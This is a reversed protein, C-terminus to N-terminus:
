NNPNEMSRKWLKYIHERYQHVRLNPNENQLIPLHKHYFQKFEHKNQIVENSSELVSLADDITGIVDKEMKLFADQQVIKKRELEKEEQLVRQKREENELLRNEEQKKREEKEQLLTEQERQAKTKPMMSLAQNLLSLDDNKVKKSKTKKGPVLLEEEAELMEKTEQKLRMKEEHKENQLQTKLEGRKNTGVEWLMEEEQIKKEEFQEQQRQEAKNERKQQKSPM